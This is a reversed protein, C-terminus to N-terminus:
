RCDKGNSGGSVNETAEDKIWKLCGCPVPIKVREGAPTVYGDNGGGHCRKCSVLAILCEDGQRAVVRYKM